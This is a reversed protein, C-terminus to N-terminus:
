EVKELANKYIQEASVTLHQFGGGVGSRHAHKYEYVNFNIEAQVYVFLKDKKINRADAIQFAKVLLDYDDSSVVPQFRSKFNFVDNKNPFIGVDKLEKEVQPLTTFSIEYRDFISVDYIHPYIIIGKIKM